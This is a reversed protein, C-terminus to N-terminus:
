GFILNSHKPWKCLKLTSVEKLAWPLWYFRFGSLNWPIWTLLLLLNKELNWNFSPLLTPKWLYVAQVPDPSSWGCNRIVSHFAGPEENGQYCPLHQPPLPASCHGQLPLHGTGTGADSLQGAALDTSLWEPHQFQEETAVLGRCKM